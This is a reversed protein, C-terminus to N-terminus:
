RMIDIHAELFWCCPLDCAESLLSNHAMHRVYRAGTHHICCTEITSGRSGLIHGRHCSLDIYQPNRSLRMWRTIGNPLRMGLM